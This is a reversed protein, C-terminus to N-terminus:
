KYSILRFKSFREFRLCWSLSRFSVTKKKKKKKGSFMSVHLPLEYSLYLKCNEDMYDVIRNTKDTEWNKM